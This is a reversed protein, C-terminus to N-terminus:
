SLRVWCSLVLLGGAVFDLQDAPVWAQGPPIKMRRKFFSKASDGVMAGTGTSFGLLLWSDYSVLSATWGIGSQIFTIVIAAVVGASFRVVTKHSGMPRPSIPRNRGRWYKVFPPVMNAFYVPLMLYLLPGIRFVPSHPFSYEALFNMM